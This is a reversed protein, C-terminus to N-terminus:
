LNFRGSFGHKQLWWQQSEVVEREQLHTEQLGLVDLQHKKVMNMVSVRCLDARRSERPRRLWGNVNLTAFATRIFPWQSLTTM